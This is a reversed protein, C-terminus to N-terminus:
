HIFHIECREETCQAIRQETTMDHLDAKLIRRKEASFAKILKGECFRRLQVENELVLKPVEVLEGADNKAAM